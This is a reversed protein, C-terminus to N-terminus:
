KDRILEFRPKTVSDVMIDSTFEKLSRVYYTGHTENMYVVMPEDNNSSKATLLVVYVGGRYHKYRGPKLM